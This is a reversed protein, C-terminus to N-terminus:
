RRRKVLTLRNVGDASEYRVEDMLHHVLHWGLGGIKRDECSPELDPQPAGAPDFPPAHDEVTVVVREPGADVTLAIPGPARGAYGHEVLNMVVEEVALRVAHEEEGVVGARACEARAYGMLDPLSSREATRVLTGSV